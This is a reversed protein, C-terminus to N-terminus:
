AKKKKIIFFAVLGIIVVAIIVGVVILLINVGDGVVDKKVTNFTSEADSYEKGVSVNDSSAPLNAITNKLDDSVVITSTAIKNINVEETKDEYDPVELVSYDTGNVSFYTDGSHSIDYTTKKTCKGIDPLDKLDVNYEFTATVSASVKLDSKYKITDGSESGNKILEFTIDFGDLAYTDESEKTCVVTTDNVEGYEVTESLAIETKLTGTVIVKDGSSVSGLYDKIANIAAIQKENMTSTDTTVLSGNATATLTIKVEEFNRISALLGTGSDSEINQGTAVTYEFTKWEVSTTGFIATNFYEGVEDGFASFVTNSQNPFEASTPNTYSLSYGAKDENIAADGDDIVFLPTLCMAAVIFVAVLAKSISKM